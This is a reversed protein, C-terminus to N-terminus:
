IVPVKPFGILYTLGAHLGLPIKGTRWEYTDRFAAGALLRLEDTTYARLQSVIGDWWCTLPVLPLIYTFFLRRWRFPRVFPTALAVFLPTILLATFLMYINRAPLEFIGIPQGADAADRLLEIAQEPRFHHFSNFMTRFGTLHRPVVAADVPDAVFGVCGNSEGAARRFAEVNPFKDTLVVEV